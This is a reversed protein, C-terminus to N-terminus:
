AFHEAGTTLSRCPSLVAGVDWFYKPRTATPPQLVTHDSLPQALTRGTLPSPLSLLPHEPVGSSCTSPPPLCALLMYPRNHITLRQAIKIPFPSPGIEQSILPLKRTPKLSLQEPFVTQIVLAAICM